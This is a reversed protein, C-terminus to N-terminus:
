LACLVVKSQLVKHVGLVEDHLL